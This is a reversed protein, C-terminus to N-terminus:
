VAEVHVIEECAEGRGAHSWLWLAEVRMSAASARRSCTFHEMESCAVRAVCGTADAYFISRGGRFVCVLRM